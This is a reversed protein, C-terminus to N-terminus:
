PRRRQPVPPTTRPTPETQRVTSDAGSDASSEPSSEPLDGEVRAGAADVMASLAALSPNALCDRPSVQVGLRERIRRALLPVIMSHGGVTFFTDETGIREVGLIESWIAAMAKEVPTRPEGEDQSLLPGADPLRRRDVKGAVNRPLPGNMVKFLAPLTLAGFARRLHARWAAATAQESADPRPVVYMVLRTVLGDHNTVPVAACEAVSEHAALAAEIETLELRNGLLKVQFDKRGRFELLGDRRRRGLDGTRYCPVDGGGVADADRPPAFAEARGGGVYGPTVYPSRVVIEGTVGVPCPRDRGDLVLVQRGPIPRGIPAAADLPGDIEHWTAAITETPGYLNVLRASPLAARLGGALDAPLAEGMLLVHGLTDLTHRGATIARLLEKAFSPVTQIWTVRESALWDALKEPHVRTREPPPCLTAGSVLAAFVECLAPDHEAAVWQAVRADPGMGFEAAMWTAFQALAEHTQPIGKPRGTSGSTYAVYALDRPGAANEPVAAVAGLASLDVLRGGLEDRYWHALADGGLDGDVLLCAPRLDELVARGREGADGSGFWVLRAGTELVGLLAAYQRPGAPMRVAVASGPVAGAARLRGAIRSAEDVLARYSLDGDPWAVAVTDPRREAQARVLEHVPPIPGTEGTRADSARLAARTRGTDELPLADVPEDPRALGAALLTRFQDLVDRASGADFLVGRYELSGTLGDGCTRVTLTLDTPVWGNHVPLRRVAAGPLTVVPEPTDRVDLIVDCLPFRGPDREVDLARVLHAFPLERRALAEDLARGARTVMTRFTVAQASLGSLDACMVLPNVFPGALATAAAPRVSVPVGVATRDENGYRYLLTQVAALLVASATTGQARALNAVSRALGAGWDFPVAGGRFSPEAPRPRDAPLVAPAPAPTLRSTWWDLLEPAPERERQARAHATYQYPLAPLAAPRGEVAAAYAESLERVIVGVTRDDTVAAHAVLVLVHEFADLRLIVLRALPGRALDFPRAAEEAALRGAGAEREWPPTGTLDVLTANEGIEAAVRQVPRGDVEHLTTRLIEHRDTVTQWAARLAAVDLRGSIRYARYVNHAPSGPFLENLFWFADQAHSTVAESGFDNARSLGTAVADNLVNVTEDRGAARAERLIRERIAPCNVPSVSNGDPTGPGQM